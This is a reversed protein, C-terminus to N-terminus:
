GQFPGSPRTAAGGSGARLVEREALRCAPPRIGIRGSKFCSLARGAVKRARARIHGTLRRRRHRASGGVGGCTTGLRCCLAFTWGDARKGECSFRRLWRAPPCAAPGQAPAPERAPPSGTGRAHAQSGEAHEEVRIAKRASAATAATPCGGLLYAVPHRRCFGEQFGEQAQDARVVNRVSRGPSRRVAGAFVRKFEAAFRAMLGKDVPYPRMPGAAAPLDKMAHQRLEPTSCERPLPSTTREIRVPLVM